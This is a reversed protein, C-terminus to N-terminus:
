ASASMVHRHRSSEQAATTAAPEDPQSAGTAVDFEQDLDQWTRQWSFCSGRQRSRAALDLRHHENNMMLEMQDAWIRPATPPLLVAADGCVEPICSRDSAIIPLAYQMAEVLPIGFGECLSPFLLATARHYFAALMARSVPGRDEVVDGANMLHIAEAISAGRRRGVFVVRFPRSSRNRLDIAADILLDHNKHPWDVGVYVFLPTSGYDADLRRLEAAYDGERMVECPAGAFVGIKRELDPYAEALDHASAESPCLVRACHRLDREGQRRVALDRHSFCEPHHRHIMDHSIVVLRGLQPVPVFCHPWLWADQQELQRRRLGALTVIAPVATARHGLLRAAGPIRPLAQLAVRRITPRQLVEVNPPFAQGGPERTTTVYLFSHRSHHAHAMLGEILSYIGGTRPSLNLGFVGIRAM